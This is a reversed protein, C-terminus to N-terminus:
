KIRKGMNYYELRGDAYIIAPLGNDRHLKNNQCWVMAGSDYIIAPLDNGRHLEGNKRWYKTGHKDITPPNEIEDAELTIAPSTTNISQTQNNGSM